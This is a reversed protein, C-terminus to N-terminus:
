DEKSGMGEEFTNMVNTTTPQQNGGVGSTGGGESM